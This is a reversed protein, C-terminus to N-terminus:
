GDGVGGGTGTGTGGDGAGADRGDGADGGGDARRAALGDRVAAETVDYEAGRRFLTAWDM